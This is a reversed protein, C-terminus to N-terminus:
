SRGLSKEPCSSRCHDSGDCVKNLGVAVASDDVGRGVTSGVCGVDESQQPEVLSVCVPVVPAAQPLGPEVPVLM